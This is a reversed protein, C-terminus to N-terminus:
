DVFDNFQINFDSLLKTPDNEKNERLYDIHKTLLEIVKKERLTLDGNNIVGMAYSIQEPTYRSLEVVKGFYALLNKDRNKLASDLTNEATTVQEQYRPSVQGLEKAAEVVKELKPIKSVTVSLDTGIRLADLALIRTSDHTGYAPTVNNSTQPQVVPKENKKQSFIYVSVSVAVVVVLLVIGIIIWKLNSNPLSVPKPKRVSDTRWEVTLDNGAEFEGVPKFGKEKLYDILTMKLNVEDRKLFGTASGAIKKYDGPNYVGKLQDDLVNRFKNVSNELHKEYTKWSVSLRENITATEKIDADPDPIFGKELLKKELYILLQEESYGSQNGKDKLKEIDEPEFEEASLIEDILSDLEERITEIDPQEGSKETSQQEVAQNEVPPVVASSEMPSKDQVVTSETSTVSSGTTALLKSLPIWEKEGKAIILTNSKIQGNKQLEQLQELTVPGINKRENDLYFYHLINEKDNNEAAPAAANEEAQEFNYGDVKCFKASSPNETGCKPCKKMPTNQVTPQEEAKTGCKPCFKANDAFSSNCKKCIM